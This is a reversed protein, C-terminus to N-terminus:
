WLRYILSIALSIVSFYSYFPVKLFQKIRNQKAQVRANLLFGLCGCRLWPRYLAGVLM